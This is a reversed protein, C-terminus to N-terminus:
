RNPGSTILTLNPRLPVPTLTPDAAAAREEYSSGAPLSFAAARAQFTSPDVEYAQRPGECLAAEQPHRSTCADYVRVDREAPLGCGTLVIALVSAFLLPKAQELRFKGSEAPTIAINKPDPTM